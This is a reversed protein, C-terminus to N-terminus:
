RAVIREVGIVLDVKRDVVAVDRGPGGVVRDQGGDTAALSDSAAGGSLLDRGLGGILRDAGAGGSLRDRGSGGRLTDDGPGGDLVDRGSGGVLLDDGGGGRLVDNGGGGCIVDRGASGTLVDRRTTGTITCDPAPAAVPASPGAVYRFASLPIPGVTRSTLVGGWRATGDFEATLKPRGSNDVVYMGYVQLARAITLCAGTCGWAAIRATTLAPDLQLRAGEPLDRPDSSAGDSKTAPAVFDGRPADYAFALAHDIRGAAIECPRILGALYPVGAGRNAFTGGNAARPPVGSWRVNYHYVNWARYGAATRTFRSAGWEDGTAHDILIIQADSGAAPAAGPPVPLRATGGRQNVLTRGDDTVNSYWGSVTVTQLPTGAAVGYVPYTYQTPDSSLTGTLAGVHFASGPHVPSAGVPTNWPSTGAYPRACGDHAAAAPSPAVLGTAAACTAAAGIALCSRWPWRPPM